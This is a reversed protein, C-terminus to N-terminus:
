AKSGEKRRLLWSWCKVGVVGSQDTPLTTTAFSDEEEEEEEEAEEEDRTRVDKRTQKKRGRHIDKMLEM